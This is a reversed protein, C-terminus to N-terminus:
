AEITSCSNPYIGLPTSELGRTSFFPPLSYLLFDGLMSWTPAQRAGNSLLLAPDLLWNITSVRRGRSHKTQHQCHPCDIWKGDSKGFIRRFIFVKDTLSFFVLLLCQNQQCSFWLCTSRLVSMFPCFQDGCACLFCLCPLSTLLGLEQARQLSSLEAQGRPCKTNQKLSIQQPIM